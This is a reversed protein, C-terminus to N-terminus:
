AAKELWQALIYFSSLVGAADVGPEGKRAAELSRQRGYKRTGALINVLIKKESVSTM